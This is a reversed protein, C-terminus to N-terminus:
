QPLVVNRVRESRNGRRTVRAHRRCVGDLRQVCERADFATEFDDGLDAVNRDVVVKGVM